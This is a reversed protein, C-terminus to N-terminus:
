ATKAEPAPDDDAVLRLRKGAAVQRALELREAASMGALDTLAQPLEVTTAVHDTPKGYVRSTWQEIARLADADTGSKVVGLLRSAITEANAELRDALLDKLPKRKDARAEAQTQRVKASRQAARKPSAAVGLGSHGPCKGTSKAAFANCLRGDDYIHQCKRTDRPADQGSSASASSEQTSM